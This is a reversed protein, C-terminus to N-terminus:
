RRRREVDAGVERAVEIFRRAVPSLVRNRLTAVVISFTHPALVVPLRKVAFGPYFYRLVSDAIVGILNADEVLRVFLHPTLVSSVALRPPDLGAARFVDILLSGIPTDLPTACWREGALEALVMKRRRAWRSHASAVLHWSDTYLVTVDLDDRQMPARMPLVALEVRREALERALLTAGDAQVARLSIGRHDQWLRHLTTTVLGAMLPETSGIRLDGAAPDALFRIEDVATRVDDLVEVTRMLLAKCYLTSDVGRAGRDFLQVGLLEELDAVAKSVVSQSVALQRAAKGIGRCEAVAAVIRLHSLKIRRAIVDSPQM